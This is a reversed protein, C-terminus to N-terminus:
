AADSPIEIGVINELSRYREVTPRFGTIAENM